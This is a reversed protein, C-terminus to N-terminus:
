AAAPAARVPAPTKKLGLAVEIATSTDKIFPMLQGCLASTLVLRTAGPLWGALMRRPGHALMEKSFDRNHMRAARLMEFPYSMLSGLVGGIAGAAFHRAPTNDPLREEIEKYGYIMGLMCISNRCFVAGTGKWFALIGEDAHIRRIADFMGTYGWEPRQMRFKVMNIPTTFLVESAGTCFGIAASQPKNAQRIDGNPAYFNIWGNLFGYHVIAKPVAGAFATPLSRYLGNWIGLSALSRFNHAFNKGNIQTQTITAEVPTSIPQEVCAHIFGGIASSAVAAFWHTQENSAAPAM